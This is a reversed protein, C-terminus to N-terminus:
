AAQAVAAPARLRSARAESIERRFTEWAKQDDEASSLRDTPEWYVRYAGPFLWLVPTTGCPAGPSAQKALHARVDDQSPTGPFALSGAWAAPDDTALVVGLHPPEWNGPNENARPWRRAGVLRGPELHRM